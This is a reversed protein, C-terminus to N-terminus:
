PSGSRAHAAARRRSSLWAALPMLTFVCVLLFAAVSAPVHRVDSLGTVTRRKASGEIARLLTSTAPMKDLYAYALGTQAAIRKLHEERVSSLHEDGTAPATGWPANRPHYGERQVASAPPLGHRNEHPVEDAGVFGIQHGDENYKPIPSKARGGVGVLVGKVQGETGAFAPLGTHHLPPAEHGDSLFLIDAGLDAATAIGHHVGKAVYSDGEWAMRWDLESLSADLASFNACVEMPALLLVTRRASFVALGLRSECPLAAVLKRLSLKVAELRSAPRGEHRYDRVNMSATIDVVAVLDYATGARRIHPVLLAALTLGLAALVLWFRMDALGLRRM